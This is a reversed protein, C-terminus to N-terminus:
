DQDDSTEEPEMAAFFEAALSKLPRDKGEARASAAVYRQARGVLARDSHADALTTIYGSPECSRLTYQRPGGMEEFWRPWDSTIFLLTGDPVALVKELPKSRWWRMTEESFFFPSGSGPLAARRKVEEISADVKADPM